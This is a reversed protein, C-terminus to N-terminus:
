LFVAESGNKQITYIINAPRTYAYESNLLANRIYPFVKKLESRSM